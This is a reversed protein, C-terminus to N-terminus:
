GSVYFHHTLRNPDHTWNVSLKKGNQSVSVIKEIQQVDAVDATSLSGDLRQTRLTKKDTTTMGDISVELSQRVTQFQFTFTKFDNPVDIVDSLNFTATYNTNNPLPHEPRFEITRNDVWTASGRVDPSFQFLQKEIKKGIEIPKNIENALLIRITSESSIIGSTYANIYTAFAANQKTESVNKGKKFFLTFVILIVAVLISIILLLRKSM